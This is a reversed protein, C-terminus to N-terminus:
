GHVTSLGFHTTYELIKGNLNARYKGGDEGHMVLLLQGALWPSQQWCSVYQWCGDELEHIVSDIDKQPCVSLPLRVACQLLLSAVAYEPECDCPIRAGKQVDESGVWPLLAIGGDETERVVLVEISDQTDRVARQGKDSDKPNDEM